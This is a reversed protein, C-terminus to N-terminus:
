LRNPFCVNDVAILDCMSESLAQHKSLNVIREDDGQFETELRFLFKIQNKRLNQSFNGISRTGM